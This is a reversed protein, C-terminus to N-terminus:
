GAPATQSEPATACAAEEPLPVRAWDIRYLSLPAQKGKVRTPPLASLPWRGPALRARTSEAILVEGAAAAACIRSALNTTDGVTAYQVLRRTGINGAAAPGTNLGVHIAIPRRGNRCWETNFRTVARQMRVAAQVALDADQASRYPAGWVALLADGIYKELTGGLPFIIEEVMVEFWANLMRIVQAPTLTSCLGTYDSIDCFLATVETDIVSLLTESERLKRNVAPPFFRELKGRYAAERRVRELLAANDLALGVQCGIALLLDADERTYIGRLSLNDVYLVGLTADRGKLPVCLSAHIRQAIISQSGDYRSDVAADASLQPDGGAFVAEAIQRSYFGADRPLGDRVQLARPELSDDANRLLITARDVAMHEFLLALARELLADLEELASLSRGIELLIRLKAQTRENALRGPVMIVSREPDFDSEAGQQGATRHLAALDATWLATAGGAVNAPLAEAAGAQFRCRTSGFHVLDGDALEVLTVPEGNVFSGNSSDLDKLVVRPLGTTPVLLIEAHYRSVNDQNLRIPNDVARGVGNCGPQLPWSPGAGDDSQLILTAM